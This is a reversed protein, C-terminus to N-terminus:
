FKVSSNPGINNALKFEFGEHALTMQQIVIANAGADLDSFAVSTPWANYVRYAAKVPVPGRTVPHALVKIDVTSRFNDGASGTGTGQIVTFLERMWNMMSHDGVALGKSLTLPAFDSQGPLKQTTTNMGGERYPIVETSINLGSVSMFGINAFGAKPHRVNVIFKFNRLPDTKLHAISTKATAM